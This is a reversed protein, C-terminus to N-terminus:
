PTAVWGNTTEVILGKSRLAARIDYLDAKRKVGIGAERTREHWQEQTLGSAGAAHLLSYMTTQNRTLQTGEAKHVGAEIPLAVCSTIPEGDEDQGIEIQELRFGFNDGTRHDRQKKVLAVVGGAVTSVQIETDAARRSRLTRTVRPKV